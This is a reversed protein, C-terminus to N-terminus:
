ADITCKLGSSIPVPDLRVVAKLMRSFGITESPFFDLHSEQHPMYDVICLTAKDNVSWPLYPSVTVDSRRFVPM